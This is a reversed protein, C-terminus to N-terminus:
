QVPIIGAHVGKAKFLPTVTFTYVAVASFCLLLCALVVSKRRIITDLLDKLDIEDKFEPVVERVETSPLYRGGSERVMLQQDMEANIRQEEKKM